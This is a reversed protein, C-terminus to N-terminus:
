RVASRKFRLGLAQVSWPRADVYPWVPSVELLVSVAKARGMSGGRIVETAGATMTRTTSTSTLIDYDKFIAITLTEDGGTSDRHQTLIKPRKWRKKDQPTGAEFWPSMWAADIGQEGSSIWDDYEQGVVELRYAYGNIYGMYWNTGDTQPWVRLNRIPYDYNTWADIFPDYVLNRLPRVGGLFQYNNSIAVWVRTNIVEVSTLDLLNQYIDGSSILEQMQSFHYGFQEDQEIQRTGGYSRLGTELDYFWVKGLGVSIADHAVAGIGDALTIVQFSSQDYGAIMHISNRKFVLVHDAYDVIGVIVDGDQGDEIDIYDESLWSGPDGPFSFRVRNPHWTASEYTNGVWLRDHQIAPYLGFIGKTGSPTNYDPDFGLEAGTLTVTATGDWTFPSQSGNVAWFKDGYSVGRFQNSIAFGTTALSRVTRQTTGDWSLIENGTTLDAWLLQSTGNGVFADYRLAQSTQHEWAWGKRTRFGGRHDFDVNYCYPTENDSLKFVETNLNLGGTFDVMDIAEVPVDRGPRIPLNAM